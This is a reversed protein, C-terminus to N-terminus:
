VQPERQAENAAKKQQRRAAQWGRMRRRKEEKQGDSPVEIKVKYKVLLICKGCKEDIDQM